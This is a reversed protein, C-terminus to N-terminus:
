RRLVVYSLLPLVGLLALLTYLRDIRTLRRDAWREAPVINELPRFILVIVSIQVATIMVAEAVQHPDDRVHLFSLVPTLYGSLWAISLSWLHPIWSMM